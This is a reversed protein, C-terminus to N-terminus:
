AKQALQVIQQEIQLLSLFQCDKVVPTVLGKPTAVAVFIDAYNRHVIETGKIQAKVTPIEALAIASAKVFFSMIGLKIEYKTLIEDKM